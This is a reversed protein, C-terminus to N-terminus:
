KRGHTPSSKWWLLKDTLVPPRLTRSSSYLIIPNAKQKKKGKKVIFTLGNSKQETRESLYYTSVLSANLPAVQNVRTQGM